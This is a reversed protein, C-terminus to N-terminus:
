KGPRPPISTQMEAIQRGTAATTYHPQEKLRPRAICVAISPIKGHYDRFQCQNDQPQWLFHQRDVNSYFIRKWTNGRSM